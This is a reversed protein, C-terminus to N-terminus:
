TRRVAEGVIAPPEPPPAAPSRLSSWRSSTQQSCLRNEPTISKAPPICLISSSLHIRSRTPLIITSSYVYLLLYGRIRRLLSIETSNEGRPERGIKLTSVVVVLHLRCLRNPITFAYRTDQYGANRPKVRESFNRRNLRKHALSDITQKKWGVLRIATAACCELILAM